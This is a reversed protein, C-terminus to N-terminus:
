ATADAGPTPHQKVLEYADRLSLGRHAVRLRRVADVQGTSSEVAEAVDEPGLVGAIRRSREDNKGEFFWQHAAAGLLLVALAAWMLVDVATADASSLTGVLVVLASIGGLGTAAVYAVVRLSRQRPDEQAGRGSRVSTSRESPTRPSM